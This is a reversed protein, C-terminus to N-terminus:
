LDNEEVLSQMAGLLTCELETASSRFGVLKDGVWCILKSLEINHPAAELQSTLEGLTMAIERDLGSLQDIVQDLRMLHKQTAM